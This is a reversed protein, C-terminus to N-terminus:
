SCSTVRRDKNYTELDYVVITTLPSLVKTRDYENKVFNTVHKDSLLNDVVKFNLNLDEIAHDFVAGISKWFSCFHNKYIFM